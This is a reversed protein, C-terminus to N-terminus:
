KHELGFLPTFMEHLLRMPPAQLRGVTQAQITDAGPILFFNITDGSGGWVIM